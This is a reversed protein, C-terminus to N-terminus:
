FLLNYFKCLENMGIDKKILTQLSLLHKFVNDNIENNLNIENNEINIENKIDNKIEEKEKM